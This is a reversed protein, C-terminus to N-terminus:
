TAHADSLLARFGAQEFHRDSTLADVVQARKMVAFSLCDTLSWDQDARAAYLRLGREFLEDSAPVILTWADTQLRAYLTTFVWRTGSRALANATEVLVYHTTIVRGRITGGVRVACAHLADRPNVIALYFATDAFVSMM